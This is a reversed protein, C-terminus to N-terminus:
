FRYIMNQWVILETMCDVLEVLWEIRYVLIRMIACFDWLLWDFHLNKGNVAIKKVSVFVCVWCDASCESTSVFAYRARTLLM